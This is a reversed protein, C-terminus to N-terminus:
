QTSPVLWPSICPLAGVAFKLSAAASLSFVVRVCMFINRKDYFDQTCAEWLRDLSGNPKYSRQVMVYPVWVNPKQHVTLFFWGTLPWFNTFIFSNKASQQGFRAKAHTSATQFLNLKHEVNKTFRHHGLFRM